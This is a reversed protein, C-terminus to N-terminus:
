SNRVNLQHVSKLNQSNWVNALYRKLVFWACTGWCWFVFVRTRKFILTQYIYVFVQRLKRKVTHLASRGVIDSSTSDSASTGEDSSVGDWPLYQGTRFWADVGSSWTIAVSALRQSKRRVCRQAVCLCLVSSSVSCNVAVVHSRDLANRRTHHTHHLAVSSIPM